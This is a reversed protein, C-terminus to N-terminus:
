ICKVIDKLLDQYSIKSKKFDVLSKKFPIEKFDQENGVNKLIENQKSESFSNLILLALKNTDVDPLFKKYVDWSGYMKHESFCWVLQSGDEELYLHAAMTRTNEHFPCFMNGNLRYDIHLRDFLKMMSVYTNIIYKESQIDLDEVVFDSRM